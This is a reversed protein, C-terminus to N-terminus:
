LTVAVLVVVLAAFSYALYRHVSGNQLARAREGVWEATRLVPGYLRAEVVDTLRQRFRAEHVLFRSEPAHVVDLDRDPRLADGFVRVLPEAYSTATYQM